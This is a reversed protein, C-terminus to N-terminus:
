ELFRENSVKMQTQNTKTLRLKSYCRENSYLTRFKLGRKCPGDLLLIIRRRIITNNSLVVDFAAIYELQLTYSLM